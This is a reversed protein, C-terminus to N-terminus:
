RNASGAGCFVHIGSKEDYSHDLTVTMDKIQSLTACVVTQPNTHQIPVLRFDVQTTRFEDYSKTDGLNKNQSLVLLKDGFQEQIKQIMHYNINM